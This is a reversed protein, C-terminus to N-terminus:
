LQDHGTSLVFWLGDENLHHTHAPIENEEEDYSVTDIIFISSPRVSAQNISQVKYWYSYAVLDIEESEYETLGIQSLQYIQPTRHKNFNYAYFDTTLVAENTNESGGVVASGVVASGVIAATNNSKQQSHSITVLRGEQNTNLVTQPVYEPQGEGGERYEPM